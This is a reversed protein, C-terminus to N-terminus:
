ASGTEEPAFYSAGRHAIIAPRPVGLKEALEKGGSRGYTVVGIALFLLGLSGALAASALITKFPYLM